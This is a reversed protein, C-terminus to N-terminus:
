DTREIRSGEHVIETRLEATARLSNTVLCQHEASRLAKECGEELTTAPITLRANTVLRTFQTVGDRRELTGTVECDLHTWEIKAARAVARFTLVFCSAVAAVLLSEPSWEDGPGGFERPAAVVLDTVSDASLVVMGNAGSASVTYNHPFPQM